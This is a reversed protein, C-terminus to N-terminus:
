LDFGDLSEFLNEYEEQDVGSNFEDWQEQSWIEAHNGAGVIVCDKELAALERLPQPINIRGLKDFDCKAAKATTLTILRRVDRKNGPLNQLKQYFEDWGEETYISICKDIGRTIIVSDDCENRIKAPIILRGKTDLSHKYEGMFM